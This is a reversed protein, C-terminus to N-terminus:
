LAHMALEVEAVARRMSLTYWSQTLFPFADIDMTDSSCAFGSQGITSYERDSLMYHVCRLCGVHDGM